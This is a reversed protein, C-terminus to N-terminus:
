EKALWRYQNGSQVFHVPVDRGIVDPLWRAAYEMGPEEWSFHGVNLLARKKGLCVADQVYEGITWDVIEGPIIVQMDNKEIFRILERDMAGGSFHFIFGARTVEMEPDGIIRIGDVHLVDIMHRALEGVTTRGVEFCAGPMFTDVSGCAEWGLMRVVGNFIGDPVDSHLRDHNRYITMGTQEILQKKAEYVPNGDLWETEDYGDFFTPEHTILFNCGLKAAKGIAEATACCTVAVGTCEKGADGIILGDCTRKHPDLPKHYAELREIIQRITM